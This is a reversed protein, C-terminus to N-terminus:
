QKIWKPIQLEVTKQAKNIEGITISKLSISACCIKGTCLYNCTKKGATKLRFVYNLCRIDKNKGKNNDVYELEPPNEVSFINASAM